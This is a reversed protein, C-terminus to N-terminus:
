KSPYYAYEAEYRRMCTHREEDTLPANLPDYRRRLPPLLGLRKMAANWSGFTRAIHDDSVPTDPIERYQTRQIARGTGDDCMRRIADLLDPDKLCTRRHTTYHTAKWYEGCHPCRELRIKAM